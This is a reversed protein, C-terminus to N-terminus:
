SIRFDRFMKKVQEFKIIVASIKKFFYKSELALCQLLLFFM